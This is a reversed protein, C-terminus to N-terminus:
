KGLLESVKTIAKMLINSPLMNDKSLIEKGDEDLILTRVIDIIGSNVSSPDLSALKMFVDMPQRDWTHFELPEGYEKITDEDDITVVVLVPKASIQSLKM